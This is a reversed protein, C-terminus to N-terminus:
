EGRLSGGQLAELPSDPSVRSLDKPIKMFFGSDGTKRNIGLPLRVLNGFSDETVTDQKPYMEVQLAPYADVHKFFNEGHDQMMVGTADLVRRAADRADAAPTGEDLVAIVHAGKSGSYSMLVKVDLVKRVYTALGYTMGQLQRGIDARCVSQEKSLWIQRPNIEQGEWLIPEEGIDKNAEARIDIDFTLCRVTNTGPKVLYHGYTAKGEVHDILDQIDWPKLPSDVNRMDERVPSYGKATQVAKADRREILQSGLLQAVKATPSEDSM